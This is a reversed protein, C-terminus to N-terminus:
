DTEGAKEGASDERRLRFSGQIGNEKMKRWLTTKSIGLERATDARSGGHKELVKLIAEAEPTRYIVMPAAPAAAQTGAMDRAFSRPLTRLVFDGTVAKDSALLVLKEAYLNLQMLNGPWHFASLVQGAEPSLVLHKRYKTCYRAIYEEALPLIDEPRERLPPLAISFQSLMTYLPLNFRGDLALGALDAGTAAILRVNVPLARTRDVQWIIGDRLGSLLQYQAAPTLRDIHDIYLTGTHASKFLSHQESGSLLEEQLKDPMGACDLAIFPNNRRLSANHVSEALARKGAGAEGQVLLPLDFQAYHRADELAERYKPAQGQIDEFRRLAKQVRSYRDQRITEEMAEITGFEQFSLIAGQSSGSVLLNALNAILSVRGMHLMFSQQTEGSQLRQLIARSDQEDFIADLKQGVLDSAGRRFIREAMYNAMTIHGQGDLRIIGDFSYNLLTTVEVTNKKELEIAYLLRKATRLAGALDELSSRLFVAPLGLERAAQMGIEGSILVDAGDAQAQAVAQPIGESSDVLYERTTVQLIDEFPKIDSFMNPFGLFAITPRPAATLRRAQTILRAISQGSLRIEVLPIDMRNLILNAHNGRAVAVLAGEKKAQEVRQLVTASNETYVRADLGVQALAELADQHMERTPTIVVVNAV